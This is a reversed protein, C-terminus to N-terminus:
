APRYGRFSATEREQCLHQILDSHDPGGEEWAQAFKALRDHNQQKESSVTKLIRLSLRLM